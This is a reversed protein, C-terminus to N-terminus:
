RPLPRASSTVPSTITPAVSHFSEGTDTFWAVGLSEGAARAREEGRGCVAVIEARDAIRHFEPLYDRGAVDGPGLIALRVLPRDGTM